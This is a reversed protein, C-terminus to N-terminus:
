VKSIRERNQGAVRVVAVELVADLVAVSRQGEPVARSDLPEPYQATKHPVGREAERGAALPQVRCESTKKRKKIIEEKRRSGSKNKEELLVQNTRERSFHVQEKGRSCGGPSDRWEISGAAKLGPLVRHVSARVNKRFLLADRPNQPTTTCARRGVDALDRCLRPFGLVVTQQEFGYTGGNFCVYVPTSVVCDLRNHGMCLLGGFPFHNRRYVYLRTHKYAQKNAAPLPLSWSQGM